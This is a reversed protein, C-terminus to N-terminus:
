NLPRLIFEPTPNLYMAGSDIFAHLNMIKGNELQINQKNGGQDGNPFTQNYFSAM